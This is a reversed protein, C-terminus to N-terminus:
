RAETHVSAAISPQSAERDHGFISTDPFYSVWGYWQSMHSDIRALSKGALPGEVARGEITWRTGTEKDYYAAKGLRNKRVEMNLTQGNIVRSVASATESGAQFLVAIPEQGLADNVASTKGGFTKLPYARHMISIPRADAAPGREPLSVALIPEFMPLRNDRHTITPKFYAAPFSDYGRVMISGKPEYGETVHMDPAMVLTDPHLRKWEGWTTDLLPATKVTRGTLPGKIASGTIQLWVSSTSTDYLAMVGNYLGYFDFSLPRNHIM